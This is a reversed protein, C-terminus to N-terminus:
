HLLNICLTHNVTLLNVIIEHPLRSTGRDQTVYCCQGEIEPLGNVRYRENVLNM